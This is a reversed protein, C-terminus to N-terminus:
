RCEVAPRRRLIRQNGSKWNTYTPEMKLRTDMVFLLATKDPNLFSHTGWGEESAPTGLVRPKRTIPHSAIKTKAESSPHSEM